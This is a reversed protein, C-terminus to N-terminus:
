GNVLIPTPTRRFFCKMTFIPSIKSSRGNPKVNEKFSKSIDANGSNNKKASEKYKKRNGRAGKRKRNRRMVSTIPTM